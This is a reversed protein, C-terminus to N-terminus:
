LLPEVDECTDLPKSLTQLADGPDAFTEAFVPPLTRAM